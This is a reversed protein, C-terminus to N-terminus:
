ENIIAEIRDLKSQAIEYKQKYDEEQTFVDGTHIIGYFYENYPMKPRLTITAGCSLLEKNIDYVICAKDEYISKKSYASESIHLTQGEVDEVFVVHGAQKLKLDDAFILMDGKQVKNGLYEGGFNGGSKRGTYKPFMQIANGILETLSINSVELYRCLAWYTCNGKYAQGKKYPHGYLYEYGGCGTQNLSYNPPYFYVPAGWKLERPANRFIAPRSFAYSIDKDELIPAFM